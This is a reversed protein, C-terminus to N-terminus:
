YLLYPKRLEAFSDLDQQYSKIINKVDIGKELAQRAKSTGMIKDIYEDHFKFRGPYMNMVTKIIHLSSEFSRYLRRDNVHIQAGGCLEGKYKSFTPSFWAERFKIGPLNLESLKKTLEHGDIWPAGFVEFPKTTGRGESINTGELFVQGPYVTATDLTPMNPSPIIWPLSTEDYWMEREWGQMPIVTLNVKKELFKDNFLEALEGVTMGHRIPIPYLGVFSSYEPYELIPGELDEGNIPNPRDLVIFDGDNEACAQMCYAMTAIYTYIRTGVDQIDFILVDASEVMSTELIKGAKVTDFSRMYEDINKLMRAEPKRSQGYLSFVPISYKDDIYFSVYEGAQANGRVGHEPGYLAVLNIEQNNYFLDIISELNSDVGTPNTILGVRKGKVLDLHNELFVEIGPKVIKQKYPLVVDKRNKCAPTFTIIAVALISIIVTSKPFRIIFKENRIKRMTKGKVYSKNGSNSLM